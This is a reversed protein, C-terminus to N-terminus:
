NWLSDIPPMGILFTSNDEKRGSRQEGGRFSM